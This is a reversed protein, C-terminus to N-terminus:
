LSPPNLVQKLHELMWQRGQPSAMVPHLSEQLVFSTPSNPLAQILEQALVHPTVPDQRAHFWYVPAQVKPALAKAEFPHRLLRAVPLWPMHRSALQTMSPFPSDLVVTQVNHPFEAALYLALYTGLSEGWVVVPQNPWRHDIFAKASQANQMLAQQSPPGAFGGYGTYEVIVVPNPLADLLPIRDSAIGANGHLYLVVPGVGERVLAHTQLDLTTLQWPGQSILLRGDAPFVVRDQHTWLLATLSLWFLLVLGALAAWIKSM